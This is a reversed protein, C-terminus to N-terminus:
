LTGGGDVNLTHLTIHGARESLLFVAAHAVDAPHGLRGLPIPVRFAAPDGAAVRTLNEEDAPDTWLTRQMATDTAGPAVVNCRVGSAALELGISRMLAAMASKTAGYGGIRLRALAAADSGIAVISGRRRRAMAAGALGIVNLAGIVNVRLMEGLEAPADDALLSGPRLIAAAHALLDVPGLGAEIGALAAAVAARDVIDVVRHEGASPVVDLGVVSAGAARLQGGIAEGIGGAAGTVVAIRGSVGPVDSSSM